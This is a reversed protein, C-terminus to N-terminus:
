VKSAAFSSSNAVGPISTRLSMARALPVLRRTMVSKWLFATKENFWYSAGGSIYYGFETEFENKTSRSAGSPTSVTSNSEMDAITMTPGFAAFLALSNDFEYAGSLGLDFVYHTM